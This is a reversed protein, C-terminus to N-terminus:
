QSQCGWAALSLNGQLEKKKIRQHIKIENCQLLHKRRELAALRDYNSKTTAHIRHHQKVTQM